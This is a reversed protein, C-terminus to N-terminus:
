KFVKRCFGIKEKKKVKAEFTERRGKFTVEHDRVLPCTMPNKAKVLPESLAKHCQLTVLSFLGYKCHHIPTMFDNLRLTLM